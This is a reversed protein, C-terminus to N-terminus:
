STSRHQQGIRPRSSTGFTGKLDNVAEFPVKM